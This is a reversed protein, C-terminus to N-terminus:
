VLGLLRLVVYTAVMAMALMVLPLDPEPQHTTTM